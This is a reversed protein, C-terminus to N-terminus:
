KKELLKFFQDLQPLIVIRTRRNAARGAATANSAVPTYDARGAAVMRAPSVQFSKQLVRAVATARKTSLDWNDVLVGNSYPISDTNGEILFEIETHANLIAAVKGLVKRAKDSVEYSGSNFLLKDSIDVYVVGKEVKIDVDKDNIDSLASKLNMVLAMNLSDKKAISSRLDNIYLDKQGINDLSKKISEAQASSVVSLSQLNNLVTTNNEKLYSVQKQLDDIQALLTAREKNNASLLNKNELKDSQLSGECARLDRQMSLYASDLQSYRAEATRLKKPSVCAFLIVATFISASIQHLQKMRNIKNIDYIM